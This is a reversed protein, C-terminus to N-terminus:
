SSLCLFIYVGCGRQLAVNTKNQKKFAGWGRALQWSKFFWKENQALAWYHSRFMKWNVNSCGGRVNWNYDSHCDKFVLM